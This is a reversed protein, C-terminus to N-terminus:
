GTGRCRVQVRPTRFGCGAGVHATPRDFQPGPVIGGLMSREGPLEELGLGLAALRTMGAVRDQAQVTGDWGGNTRQDIQM